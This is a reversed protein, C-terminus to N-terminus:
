HFVRSITIRCSSKDVKAYEDNALPHLREAYVQVPENKDQRAKCLITFAHHPDNVEAFRVNLESKLQERSNGPYKAM